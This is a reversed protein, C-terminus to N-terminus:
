PNKLAPPSKFVPGACPVPRQPRRTADLMRLPHHLLEFRNWHRRDGGDLTRRDPQPPAQRQRAIQHDGGGIREETRREDGPRDNGVAPNAQRSVWCSPLCRAPM